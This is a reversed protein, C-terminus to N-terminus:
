PKRVFSKFSIAQPSSLPPLCRDKALCDTHRIALHLFLEAPLPEVSALPFQTIFQLEHEVDVELDGGKLVGSRSAKELVGLLKGATLRHELDDAVWLQLRCFADARLTGGCDIFRKEIHAVETVHAHAAVKTGDPLVFRLAHEPYGALQIKFDTLKM